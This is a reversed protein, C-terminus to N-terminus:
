SSASLAVAALMVIVALVTQVLASKPTTEEDTIEASEALERLLWGPGTQLSKSLLSEESRAAMQVLSFLPRQLGYHLFAPVYFEEKALRQLTAWRGTIGSTERPLPWTLAAVGAMGLLVLSIVPWPFPSGPTRLLTSALLSLVMVMTGAVLAPSGWGGDIPSPVSDAADDDTHFRDSWNLRILLFLMLTQGFMAGALVIWPNMGGLGFPTRVSDFVPETGLGLLLILLGCPVTGGAARINSSRQGASLTITTLLLIISLGWPACAPMRFVSGAIWLLCLGAQGSAIRVFKQPAPAQGWAIIPLLVASLIGLGALLLRIEIFSVLLVQWRLLLVVGMGVGFAITWAAHRCTQAAHGTWTMLPYLGSRLVLAAVMLMLATVTHARGGGDLQALLEPNTAEVISSTGLVVNLRALGGLWLLDAVTLWLLCFRASNGERASEGRGLILCLMWSSLVMGGWSYWADGALVATQSAALLLLGASFERRAPRPTDPHPRPFTWILGALWCSSALWATSLSDTLIEIASTPTAALQLLITEGGPIGKVANVLTKAQITVALLIFLYPWIRPTTRHSFWSGAIVALGALLALLPVTALLEDSVM